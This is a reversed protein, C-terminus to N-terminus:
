RQSPSGCAATRRSRALWWDRLCSSPRTVLVRGELRTRLHSRSPRDTVSRVLTATCVMRASGIADHGRCLHRGGPIPGTPRPTTRHPWGSATLELASEGLGPGRRTDRSAYCRRRTPPSWPTRRGCGQPGDQIPLDTPLTATCGLDLSGPATRPPRPRSTVSQPPAKQCWTM